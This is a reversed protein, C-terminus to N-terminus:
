WGMVKDLDRMNAMPVSETQELVIMAVHAGYKLSERDQARSAARRTQYTATRITAGTLPIKFEVKIM